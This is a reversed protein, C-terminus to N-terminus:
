LQTESLARNISSLLEDRRAEAEMLYPLAYTTTTFLAASEAEASLYGLAYLVRAVCVVEITPWADCQARMLADHSEALASFLYDNQEEGHVLRLVLECIRAFAVIGHVDGTASKLARAGAVRWGRRGRVLSIEARAYTQLAYRMRSKEGRVASARARVLGFDRTFITFVKDAEGQECSKLVLAETNYKQYM